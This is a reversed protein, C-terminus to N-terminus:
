VIPFDFFELRINQCESSLDRLRGATKESDAILNGCGFASRQDFQFLCERLFTSSPLSSSDAQRTREIAGRSARRPAGGDNAARPRLGLVLIPAAAGVMAVNPSSEKRGERKDM